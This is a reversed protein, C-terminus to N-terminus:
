NLLRICEPLLRSYIDNLRFRRKAQKGEPAGNELKRMLSSIEESYNVFRVIAKQEVTSLEEEM